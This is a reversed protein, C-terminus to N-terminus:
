IRWLAQPSTSVLMFTLLSHRCSSYSSRVQEDFVDEWPDGTYKLMEMTDLLIDENGEPYEDYLRFVWM